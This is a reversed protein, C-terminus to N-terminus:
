LAGGKLADLSQFRAQIQLPSFGADQLLELSHRRCIGHTKIQGPRIAVSGLERECWACVSILAGSLGPKGQTEHPNRSDNYGAQHETKTM